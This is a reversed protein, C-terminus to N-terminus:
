LAFVMIFSYGLDNPECVHPNTLWIKSKPSLQL